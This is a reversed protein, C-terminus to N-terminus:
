ILDSLRDRLGETAAAAQAELLETLASEFRVRALRLRETQKALGAMPVKSAAPAKARVKGVGENKIFKLVTPYSRDIAEAIAPAREGRAVRALIDKKEVDTLRMPRGPKKTSNKAM